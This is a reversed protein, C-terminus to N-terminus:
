RQETQIARRDNLRLYTPRRGRPLRGTAGEEVWRDAILREVIASVTSRQLGSRRALDARSSPQQTRVLNLVIRRNIDRATESTASQLNRLDLKRM